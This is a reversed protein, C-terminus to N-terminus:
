RELPSCFSVSTWGAPHITRGDNARAPINLVLPQMLITDFLAVYFVVTANDKASTPIVPRKGASRRIRRAAAHCFRPNYISRWPSPCRLRFAFYGPFPMQETRDSSEVTGDSRLAGFFLHYARQLIKPDQKGQGVSNTTEIRGVAPCGNWDRGGRELIEYM